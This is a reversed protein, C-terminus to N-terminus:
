RVFKKREKKPLNKFFVSNRVRRYESAYFHLHKRAIRIFAEIHLRVMGAWRFRESGIDIDAVLGWTASLFMAKDGDRETQVHCIRLPLYRPRAVM